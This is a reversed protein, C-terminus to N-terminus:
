ALKSAVYASLGGAIVALITAHSANKTPTFVKIALFVAKVNTQLSNIRSFTRTLGVSHVERIVEFNQWWDDTTTSAMPEPESVYM